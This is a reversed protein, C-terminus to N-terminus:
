ADRSLRTGRVDFRRLAPVKVVQQALVVISLASAENHAVMLRTLACRECSGKFAGALMTVGDAGLENNSLDLVRVSSAHRVIYQGLVDVAGSGLENGALLLETVGHSAETLPGLLAVVADDRMDLDCLALRSLNPQQRLVAALEAAARADIRNDSIDLEALSTTCGLATALCRVANADAGLSSARLRQLRPMKEVLGAIRELGASELRNGRVDLVRLNSVAPQLYDCLLRASEAALETESLAVMELYPQKALLARCASIGDSGLANHSLDVSRLQKWVGISSSIAKLSRLAEDRPLSAIIDSLIVTELCKMRALSLLQSGVHAVAADGLAAGSLNITTYAQQSLPAFLSALLKRPLVERSPPSLTFTKPTPSSPPVPSQHSM